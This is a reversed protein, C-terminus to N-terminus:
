VRLVDVPCVGAERAAGDPLGNTCRSLVELLSKGPAVPENGNIVSDYPDDPLVRVVTTMAKVGMHWM